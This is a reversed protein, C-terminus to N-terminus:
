APISPTHHNGSVARCWGARLSRLSRPGRGRHRRHRRQTRFASDVLQRAPCTAHRRLTRRTAEGPAICSPLAVGLPDNGATLATAARKKEAVAEPHGYTDLLRQFSEFLEADFDRDEGMAGIVPSGPHLSGLPMTSRSVRHEFHLWAPHHRRM